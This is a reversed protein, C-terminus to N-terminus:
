YSFWGQCRWKAHGTEISKSANLDVLWVMVDGWDREGTEGGMRNICDGVRKGKEIEGDGEVRDHMMRGGEERGCRKRGM